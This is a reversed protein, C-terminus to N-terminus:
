TLILLRQTYIPIYIVAYKEDTETFLRCCGTYHNEFSDDERERERM